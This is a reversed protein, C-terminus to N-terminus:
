DARSLAPLRSAVTEAILGADASEGQLCQASSRVTPGDIWRPAIATTSPVSPIGFENRHMQAVLQELALSGVHHPRLDLGACRRDNVITDLCVFGHTTPVSAGAAEMWEIAEIQHGLVVDPSHEKFWRSFESAGLGTTKLPPVVDSFGGSNAQFAMYAAQWRYQIRDDVHSEVFLGPRQYGLMHLYELVMIMARYHDPYVSHLAPRKIAYDTYVGALNSWDLCSVDPENWTPLLIIGRINRAKLIADFRQFPLKEGGVVFTELKFGLEAARDAAGRGIDSHYRVSSPPRDNEDIEVVAVLGRFTGNSSRRVESMVASALPNTRYGAAEAADLVRRATAPKVRSSGNLAGSVTALSLRLSRALSRLTPPTM